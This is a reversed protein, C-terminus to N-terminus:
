LFTPIQFYFFCQTVTFFVFLCTIGQPPFLLGSQLQKAAYNIHFHKDYLWLVDTKLRSNFTETGSSPPSLKWRFSNMLKCCLSDVFPYIFFCYCIFLKNLFFFFVSVMSTNDPNPQILAFFFHKFCLPFIHYVHLHRNEDAINLSCFESQKIKLPKSEVRLHM